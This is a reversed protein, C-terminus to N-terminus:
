GKGGHWRWRGTQRETASWINNGHESRARARACVCVAFWIWYQQRINLLEKDTCIIVNSQMNYQVDPVRVHVLRFINVYIYRIDVRLIWDIYNDEKKPM